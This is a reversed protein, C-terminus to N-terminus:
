AVADQSRGLELVRCRLVRICLAIDVHRSEREAKVEGSGRDLPWYVGAGAKREQFKQRNPPLILSNQSFSDGFVALQLRYALTIGLCWRQNYM